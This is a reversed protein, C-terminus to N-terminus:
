ASLFVGCFIIMHTAMMVQQGWWKIALSASTCSKHSWEERGIIMGLFVDLSDVIMMGCEWMQANM